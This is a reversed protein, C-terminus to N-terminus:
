RVHCIDTLLNDTDVIYKSLYQAISSIIEKHGLHDISVFMEFFATKVIVFTKTGNKRTGDLTVFM